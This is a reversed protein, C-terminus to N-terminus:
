GREGVIPIKWNDEFVFFNCGNLTDKNLAFKDFDRLKTAGTPGRLPWFFITNKCKVKIVWIYLIDSKWGFRHNLMDHPPGSSIFHGMIPMKAVAKSLNPQNKETTKSKVLVVGRKQRQPKLDAGDAAVVALNIIAAAQASPTTWVGRRM